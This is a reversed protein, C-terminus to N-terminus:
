RGIGCFIIPISGPGAVLAGLAGALAVTRDPMIADSLLLVGPMLLVCPVFWLASGIRRFDFSCLLLKRAAPTGGVRAAFVYAAHM